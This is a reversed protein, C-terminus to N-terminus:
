CPNDIQSIAYCSIIYAYLRHRCAGTQVGGDSIEPWGNKHSLDYTVAGRPVDISMQM